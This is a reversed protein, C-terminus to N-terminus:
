EARKQRKNDRWPNRAARLPLIKSHDAQYPRKGLQSAMDADTVDMGTAEASGPAAPGAAKPPQRQLAETAPNFSKFSMRGQSVEPLPDRESIVM